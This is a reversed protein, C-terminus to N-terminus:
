FFDAWAAEVRRQWHAPPLSKQAQYKKTRQIEQSLDDSTLFAPDLDLRSYIHRLTTLPDKVLQEYRVTINQNEPVKALGDALKREMVIRNELIIERLDDDDIAEGLAYHDFLSRWMRFTSEFVEQPNRQIAVFKAQPFLRSIMAIRYSHPPSKLIVPHGKARSSIALVFAEFTQEWYEQDHEDLDFPDALFLADKLRDPFVLSEYPSRVGLGLLAFEDEQPSAASVVVDDM